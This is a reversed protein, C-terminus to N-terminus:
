DLCVVESTEADVGLNECNALPHPAGSDPTEDVPPLGTDPAEGGNEGTLLALEAALLDPDDLEQKHLMYAVPGLAGKVTVDLNGDPHLRLEAPGLLPLDDATYVGIGTRAFNRLVVMDPHIKLTFLHLWSDVAFARGRQIHIRKSLSSITWVGDIPLADSEAVQDKMPLLADIQAVVIARGAPGGDRPSSAAPGAWSLAFALTFALATGAVFARVKRKTMGAM